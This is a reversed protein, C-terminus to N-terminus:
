RSTQRTLLRALNNQMALDIAAALSLATPGQSVKAAGSVSPPGVGGTPQSTRQSPQGGVQGGQVASSQPVGSPTTSEQRSNPVPIGQSAGAGTGGKPAKAPNQTSAGSQQGQPTIFESALTHAGHPKVRNLTLNSKSSDDSRSAEVTSGNALVMLGFAIVATVRGSFLRTHSVDRGVRKGRSAPTRSKRVM